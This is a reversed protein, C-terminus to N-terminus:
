FAELLIFLDRPPKLQLVKQHRGNMAEEQLNPNRLFDVPHSFQTLISPLIFGKPSIDLANIEIIQRSVLQFLIIGQHLPNM